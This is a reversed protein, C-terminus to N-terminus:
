SLQSLSINVVSINVVDAFDTKFSLGLKCSIVPQWVPKVVPQMTCVFMWGTTWGTECDTTDHLRPKIFLMVCMCWYFVHQKETQISKGIRTPRDVTTWRRAARNRGTRIGSLAHQQSVVFWAPPQLRECLSRAVYVAIDPRVTLDARVISM